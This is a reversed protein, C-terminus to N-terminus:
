AADFDLAPEADELLELEAPSMDKLLSNRHGNKGVWAGFQVYLTSLLGSSM